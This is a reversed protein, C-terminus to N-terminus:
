GNKKMVWVQQLTSLITSTAWYLLVGSPMKFGFILFMLPSLFLFKRQSPDVMMMSQSWYTFISLTVPLIYTHDAVSLNTLWFPLFGPNIGPQLIIEKFTTSTITAYIALFFPIQVLMPLCGAFPNINHQRYLALTEGHMKQPDKAHKEKIAQLEPGLTQMIKMTQIQKQMLPFFMVKIIVTLLIIALGYNAYIHEYSFTLFPLMAKHILYHIPGFTEMNM